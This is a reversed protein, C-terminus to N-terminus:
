WRALHELCSKPITSKLCLTLSSAKSLTVLFLSFAICIDLKYDYITCTVLIIFLCIAFDSLVLCLKLFSVKQVNRGLIRLEFPLWAHPILVYELKLLLSINPCYECVFFSLIELTTLIKKKKKIMDIWFLPSFPYLPPM